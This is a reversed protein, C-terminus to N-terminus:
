SFAEASECVLEKGKTTPVIGVLWRRDLSRREPGAHHPAVSPLRLTHPDLGAFVALMRAARPRTHTVGLLAVVADWRRRSRRGVHRGLGAVVEALRDDQEGLAPLWRVPCADAPADGALAAPDVVVAGAGLAVTVGCVQRAALTTAVIWAAVTAVSVDDVASWDPASPGDLPRWDSAPFVGFAQVAGGPARTEGADLLPAVGPHDVHLLRGAARISSTSGSDCQVLVGRGLRTDEARWLAGAVRQTLPAHLRYRGDALTGRASPRAGM